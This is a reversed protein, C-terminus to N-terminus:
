NLDFYANEIWVCVTGFATNALSVAACNGTRIVDDWRRCAMGWRRIYWRLSLTGVDDTWAHCVTCIALHVLQPLHWGCPRTGHSNAQLPCHYCGIRYFALPASRKTVLLVVICLACTFLLCFLARCSNDCFIVFVMNMGGDFIQQLLDDSKSNEAFVDPKRSNKFRIDDLRDFLVWELISVRGTLKVEDLEM